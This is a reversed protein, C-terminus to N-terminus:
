IGLKTVGPNLAISNREGLECLASIFRALLGSGGSRQITRSFCIAWGHRLALRRSAPKPPPTIQIGPRVPRPSFTTARMRPTSFFLRTTSPYTSGASVAIDGSIENPHQFLLVQESGARIIRTVTFWGHELIKVINAPEGKLNMEQEAEFYRPTAAAMIVEQVEGPLTNFNYM